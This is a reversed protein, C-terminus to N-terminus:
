ELCEHITFGRKLAELWQSLSASIFLGDGQERIYALAYRENNVDNFVLKLGRYDASPPTEWATVANELQRTLFEQRTM